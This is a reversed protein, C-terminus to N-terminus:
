KRDTKGTQRIAGIGILGSGTIELIWAWNDDNLNIRLFEDVHNITAARMVVFLVLVIAGALAVQNERFFRRCRWWLWGLTGLCAVSFVASFILQVRRRSGYWHGASLVNRGAVIMLTQLNLQKNVGLFLLGAALLWWIPERSLPDRSKLATRACCAAAGFYVAVVTWGLVTPNDLHFQWRLISEPAKASAEDLLM